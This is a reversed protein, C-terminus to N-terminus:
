ECPSWGSVRTARFEDFLVKYKATHSTIDQTHDSGWQTHHFVSNDPLSESIHVSQISGTDNDGESHILFVPAKIKDVHSICSADDFSTGARVRVFLRIVPLFIRTWKGFWKDARETTATYWNEFPSDSLIFALPRQSEGGAQLVTAAGWSVGVWGTQADTLGNQTQLWDTVKMLDKSEMVGGTAETGGSQNHARHDYFLLDCACDQFLPAYKMSGTRNSNWGHAFVVACTASDRPYYWGSLSIDGEGAISVERAAGLYDYIQMYDYGTRTISRGRVGDYASDPPHLLMSSFFYGGAVYIIVLLFLLFYILKKLMHRIYGNTMVM